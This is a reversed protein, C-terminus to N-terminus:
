KNFLRAFFGRNKLRDIEQQLEYKEGELKHNEKIYSSNTSELMANKELLSEKSTREENYMVEFKSSIQKYENLTAKLTENEQILAFMKPNERVEEVVKRQYNQKLINYAEQSYVFKVQKGDIIKESYQDLNYKNKINNWSGRKIGFIKMFDFSTYINENEKM